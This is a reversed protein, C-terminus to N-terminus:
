FNIKYLKATNNQYIIKGLKKFNDENLNPYKERELSSVVAYSIKYKVLLIKILNIDNGTYLTKVDEIRPAVIDYTGRWLWEHVPWGIVTPLGTNASIRAYDTYSDGSAELIIPQGKINKNMWNILKYDDPYLDSLYKIGNLSQYNTLNRYYSGIAFFPYILNLSILLLSSLLFLFLLLRNKISSLLKVLIYASSISLMIFAEYSLKFMTNARYHQPYIDKIYVFEPVILLLSSLLIIILIFIDNKSLKYNEKFKLFLIFSITFFYFFGYLLVLQWIPSRQCHNAEFIFPGLNGLNTLFSPACLIGVGSVFPKFNLSFPISFAIFGVVIILLSSLWTYIKLTLNEIKLSNKIELKENKIKRHKAQTQLIILYFLVIAILLFYIIGDWANTMYMIALLFSILPIELKLNKIKLESKLFLSFLVAIILLVFPIDLVHGHLDSVAFSYLPFEHITFPIFRTANPYWYGNPFIFPLFPLQWFPVPNDAPVYAKFFTYITTLNGGFSVFVAAFIGSLISKISFKKNDFINIALSLSATFTLAFLTALMLNYSIFSAIGSLKTVVASMLHGFYYYNIPQSAYWMDKPPFYDSRLISNLFGFDMFKELGKIEPLNSRVFVWFILASFFILEEIFFIKLYKKIIFLINEKKYISFAYNLIFFLLLTLYISIESFRVIKLVGVIFIFYSIFGLGIIKSFIYGKDKFNSFVSFTLPLFAAGIVFFVLFWKLIYFTDTTLM